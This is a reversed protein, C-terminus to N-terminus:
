LIVQVAGAIGCVAAWGLHLALNARPSSCLRLGPSLFSFFLFDPHTWSFDIIIVTLNALPTKGGGTNLGKTSLIMLQVTTYYAYLAPLFSFFSFSAIDNLGQVIINEM